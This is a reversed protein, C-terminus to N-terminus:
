SVERGQGSLRAVVTIEDGAGVAPGAVLPLAFVAAYLARAPSRVLTSYGGPALTYKLPSRDHAVGLLEFGSRELLATLTAESFQFLHAPPEPHTWYGTLRAVPWSLRPFLGSLNPTSVAVHGAPRLTRRVIELARRPDTVHELLDWMTVVDYEGAGLEAEEIRARWVRRTVRARALEVSDRNIDIGDVEWGIRQAAALFFGAACGVDLLRGPPAVFASLQKVHHEALRELRAIEAPDGVSEVGYGEVFSYFRELEDPDSPDSVAVLGCATCRVLQFGNKEFFPAAADAGCLVCPRSM